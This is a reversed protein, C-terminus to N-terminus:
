LFYDKKVYERKKKLNIDKQANFAFLLLHVTPATKLASNVSAM